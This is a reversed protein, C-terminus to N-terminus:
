SSSVSAPELWAGEVESDDRSELWMILGVVLALSIAVVALWYVVKKLVSAISVRTKSSM